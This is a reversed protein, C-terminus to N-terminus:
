LILGLNLFELIIVHLSRIHDYDNTKKMYNTIASEGVEETRIYGQNMCVAMPSLSFLLSSIQSTM